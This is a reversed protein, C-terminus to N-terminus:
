KASLLDVSPTGQPIKGYIAVAERRSRMHLKQYIRNVHTNVTSMSIGFTESIEQYTFGRALLSLLERERPSLGQPESSQKPVSSQFVKLVRRAFYSTMPAGGEHIQKMSAFFEEKQARKVLYGAAGVALAEFIHEMDEFVTLMVFETGPMQPKLFEVCHVGNQGSLNIDILVIEPCEDPLHAM